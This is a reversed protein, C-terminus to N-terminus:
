RINATQSRANIYINGHFRARISYRGRRGLKATPVVIRLSLSCDKRLGITRSAGTKSGRRLALTVLGRCVLSRKSGPISPPLRLAANVTFTTRGGHVVRRASLRLGPLNARPLGVPPHVTPPAPAPGPGPGPAPGPGPGPGADSATFVDNDTCSTPPGGTCGTYALNRVENTPSSYTHGGVTIDCGGTLKAVGTDTGNGKTPNVRSFTGSDYTCSLTAGSAGASGTVTGTVNFPTGPAVGCTPDYGFTGTPGTYAPANVLHMTLTVPGAYAYPMGSVTVTYSATSATETFDLANVPVCPGNPGISPKGPSITSGGSASGNGTAALAGPAATVALGLAGVVAM